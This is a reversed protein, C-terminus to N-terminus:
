VVYKSLRNRLTYSPVGGRQMSWGVNLGSKRCGLLVLSIQSANVTQPIDRDVKQEAGPLMDLIAHFCVGPITM